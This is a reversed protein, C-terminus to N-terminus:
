EFKCTKAAFLRAKGSEFIETYALQKGSETRAALKVEKAIAATLTTLWRKAYLRQAGFTTPTRFVARVRLLIRSPTTCRYSDSGANTGGQLQSAVGGVLARPSLEVRMRSTRCREPDVFLWRTLRPSPAGALGSAFTGDRNEIGAAATYKWQGPQDPDRFGRVASVEFFRVGAHPAVACVFTRDIVTSAPPATTARGATLWGAALLMAILVPTIRM